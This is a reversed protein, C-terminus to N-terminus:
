LAEDEGTQTEYPWDLIGGFDYVKMYGLALLKHAAEASRRGSRCYILLEAEKDPLLEPMEQGIQENPVLIAGPIHGADYEAQTRVDVIVVPDGSEMRERAQQPTIKRYEGAALTPAPSVAQPAQTMMAADAMGRNQSTDRASVGAAGLAGAIVLVLGILLLRNM